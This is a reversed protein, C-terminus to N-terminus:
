AWIRSLILSVFFIVLIIFIIYIGLLILCRKDRRTM